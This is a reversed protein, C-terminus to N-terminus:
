KPASRTQTARSEVRESSTEHFYPDGYRVTGDALVMAFPGALPAFASALSSPEGTAVGPDNADQTVLSYTGTFPGPQRTQLGGGGKPSDIEPQRLPWFFAIGISNERSYRVTSFTQRARKECSWTTNHM